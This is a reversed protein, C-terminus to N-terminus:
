KRDDNRGSSAWVALSTWGPWQEHPDSTLRHRLSTNTLALTWSPLFLRCNRATRLSCTSTIGRTCMAALFSSVVRWVCRGSNHPKISPHWSATMLVCVCMRTWGPLSGVYHRPTVLPASLKASDAPRLRSTQFHPLSANSILCCSLPAGAAGGPKGREGCRMSCTNTLVHEDFQMNSIM